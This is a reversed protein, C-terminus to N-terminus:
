IRYRYRGNAFDYIDFAYSACTPDGPGRKSTAEGKDVFRHVEDTHRALCGRIRNLERATVVPLDGNFEPYALNLNGKMFIGGM